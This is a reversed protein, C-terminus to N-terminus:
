GELFEIALRAFEDPERIHVEVGRHELPPVPPGPIVRLTSGRIGEAARQEGRRM